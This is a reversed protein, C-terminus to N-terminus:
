YFSGSRSPDEELHKKQYVYKTYIPTSPILVRNNCLKYRPLFAIFYLSLSVYYSGVGGLTVVIPLNKRKLSTLGLPSTGPSRPNQLPYLIILCHFTEGKM